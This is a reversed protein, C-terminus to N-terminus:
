KGAGALAVFIIKARRGTLSLGQFITGKGEYFKTFWEYVHLRLAQVYVILGELLMVGINGLVALPLFAPYGYLTAVIGMVVAHALLMIGIRVYSISNALFETIRLFWEIPGLILADTLRGAEEGAKISLLHSLAILLSLVIGLPLVITRTVQGISLLPLLPHSADNTLLLGFSYNSAVLGTAFLTGVVAYLLFTPLSLTLAKVRKSEKLSRQVDLLFALALHLAGMWVSLALIRIIDETTELRLVSIAALFETIPGFNLEALKLGFAEGTLLGGVTASIGCTLLLIGWRRYRPELRQAVLLGALALILGQGADAFMLGYFIPFIFAIIPTPDIETHAPPGQALTVLEFAKAWRPNSMLTPAEKPRDDEVIIVGKTLKRKLEDLMRLPVYAKLVGFYKLTGVRAVKELYGLALSCAERLTLIQEGKERAMEGISRRVAQLERELESLELRLRQTLKSPNVEPLDELPLPTAGLVKMIRDLEKEQSPLVILLLVAVREDEYVTYHAAKSLSRLLEEKAGKPVSVILPRLYRSRKLRSLDYDLERLVALSALLSRKSEITASLERERRFLESLAEIIPRAEERVSEFFAEWAAVDFSRVENIRGRLIQHVIPREEKLSLDRAVTDLSVLLGRLGALLEAVRRDSTFGEDQALHVLGLSALARSVDLIASRPIVIAVRAVKELPMLRV